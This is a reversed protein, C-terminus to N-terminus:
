CDRRQVRFVFQVASWYLQKEDGMDYAPDIRNPRVDMVTNNLTRDAVLVDYISLALDQAKELGEQPDNNKVLTVFDFMFDHQVSNGGKFTPEYSNPVIWISPSRLRGIHKREGLTIDQIDDLEEANKLKDQIEERIEKYTDKLPKEQRKM